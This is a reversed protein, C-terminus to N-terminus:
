EINQIQERLQEIAAKLDLGLQTLSLDAAKSCLTNAERNFEQCLFDLRRGIAQGEALLSRAQSLHASLRDLEERVDAKGVLIALEQALREEPLAPAADLLAEVQTRLRQKLVAPQAAGAEAAATVLREIDDLHRTLAPLLNAGEAIRAAGLRELAEELSQELAADLAARQSEDPEDVAELVGRLALLGDLRPPALGAGELERAIALIQDLLPRNVRLSVSGEPRALVLQLNLNGRRFHRAVRARVTTELRELGAPLRCRVDLSRGNVSRAEWAWELGEHRGVARAFGTM